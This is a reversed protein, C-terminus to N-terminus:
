VFQGAREEAVPEIIKTIGKNDANQMRRTEEGDDRRKHKNLYLKGKRTIEIARQGGYTLYGLGSLQQVYAHVTGRGKYGMYDALEQYSPIYGKADIFRDIAQLTKKLNPKM